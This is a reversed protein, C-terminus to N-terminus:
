YLCCRLPLTCRLVLWSPGCHYYLYLEVREKVEAISPTAHYPWAGSAKDGTFLGPVWQIPPQTPGLVALYKYLFNPRRTATHILKTKEFTIVHVRYSIVFTQIRSDEEETRFVSACTGGFCRCRAVPSYARVSNRLVTIKALSNKIIYAYTKYSTSNVGPKDQNSQTDTTPVNVCCVLNHVRYTWLRLAHFPLPM